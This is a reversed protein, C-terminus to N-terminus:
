SHILITMGNRLVNQSHQVILRKSEIIYELMRKTKKVITAKVVRIDLTAGKNVRNKGVLERKIMMKYIESIAKFTLTSKLHPSSNPHKRIQKSICDITSILDNLIGNVTKSSTENMSDGM